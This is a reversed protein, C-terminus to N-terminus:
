WATSSATRRRRTTPRACSSSSSTSRDWTSRRCTSASRCTGSTSGTATSAGSCCSPVLGGEFMDPTGWESTVVTDHGLHWWIDYAFSQPGRDVEWRGLVDFSEHDMVFVGGPAKGEANGLATVYIGDPGCHM